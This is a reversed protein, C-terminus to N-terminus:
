LVRGPCYTVLSTIIGLVKALDYLEDLQTLLLHSNASFFFSFFLPRMIYTGLLEFRLVAAAAARRGTRRGAQCLGLGVAWRDLLM